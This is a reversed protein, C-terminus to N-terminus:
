TAKNKKIIGKCFHVPTSWDPLSGGPPVSCTTTIPGTELFGPACTYRRISGVLNDGPELVANAVPYPNNCAPLNLM